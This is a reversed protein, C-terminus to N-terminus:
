TKKLLVKTKGQHRDPRCRYDQGKVEVFQCMETLRSYIRDGLREELTGPLRMGGELTIPVNTGPTAKPLYNSTALLTKGANYRSSVLEDLVALEWESNRGKGLEDILLVEVALLPSVTTSEWRGEAFDKKLDFVLQMFEVYRCSIGKELTLYSMLACMLHTKGVGPKGWLLFGRSGPSFDDRYQLYAYKIKKQTGDRDEYGDLNAKAFRAPIRAENFRAIRLDLTRCDCAIAFTDGEPTTELRLGRNQCTPCIEFCQCRKAVALADLTGVQYRDGDCWLCRTDDM